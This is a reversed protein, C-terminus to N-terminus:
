LYRRKRLALKEQIRREYEWNRREVPYAFTLALADGDDPSALGRKRMDDKRELRIADSADYGYDVATLDASLSRDEPLCGFKCWEKMHGWMEARKNAYRVAAESGDARDASSGFDIGRVTSCGLQVLRDVVGWGIGTGDVFVADPEYSNVLEMVRGATAMLDPLRFKVAPISRADLGRRFRIVTQDEGHRAIDVGMVLAATPDRFLERAVAQEVRESDIFQMTGARPFEGKVRVRVFDSDEGYDAVWTAIQAKNTMSVSRSDIQQPQWRHAFRGGAFCERFRGTTRTPNGFALWFLETGADTLAGEITEWVGDAISSAEDFLAFARKGKNHLGAIAETNNESWTIADVRWTRDRGPRSSQLSTAAYTFWSRNVSLAHWKALEPWTKTRLQGETNATVVGRTDSLTSMAWLIIWAVLASKGIGHGSAVALRVAEEALGDRQKLGRGLKGLVERQWPEPGTENALSTGPRGWPFAFMVFGLPDFRYRGIQESVRTSRPFEIVTMIACAKALPM